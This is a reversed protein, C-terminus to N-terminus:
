DLESLLTTLLHRIRRLEAKHVQGLSALVAEARATLRLHVRRRDRTAQVQEALALAALRDAMGSISHPRLLMTAAFEGITMARGDSASLALLIQHQQPTLGAGGTDQETFHAFARLEARVLALTRYDRDHILSGSGRAM